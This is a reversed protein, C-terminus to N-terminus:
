KTGGVTPTGPTIVIAPPAVPASVSSSSGGRSAIIGGVAAGGAIALFIALKTSGSIGGTSSSTGNVNTQNVTINATQGQLTAAVRIPMAGTAANPHIASSAARGQTDSTVTMSTTDNLFKGGPGQNPLNFTVSAGPAPNGDLRVEVVVPKLARLKINNLAGQGEVIVIRLGSQDDQARATPSALLLCLLVALFPFINRGPM